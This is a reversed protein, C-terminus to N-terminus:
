QARIIWNLVISPQVNASGGGGANQVTIGTQASDTQGFSSSAGGFGIPGGPTSGSEVRPGSEVTSTSHFHGPDDVGHNHDQLRQDGGTAGLTTAALGSVAATVRNAPTGGMNDKGVAVRGRGDPLNFTTSGDGPGHAVGIAAFLAAYETRSVAQGRALLWGTPATAGAYTLVAGVPVLGIVESGDELMASSVKTTM